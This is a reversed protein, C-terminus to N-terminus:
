PINPQKLKLRAVFITRFCDEEATAGTHLVGSPFAIVQGPQATRLVAHEQLWPVLRDEHIINSSSRGRELSESRSHRVTSVLSQDFEASIASAFVTPMKTTAQLFLHCPSFNEGSVLVKLTENANKIAGSVLRVEGDTHWSVFQRKDARVTSQCWFLDRPFEPPEIFDAIQSAVNRFQESIAKVSASADLERLARVHLEEGCQKYSPVSEPFPEDFHFNQNIPEIVFPWAAPLIKERNRPGELFNRLEALGSGTSTEQSFRHDIFM